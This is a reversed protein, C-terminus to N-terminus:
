IAAQRVGVCFEAIEWNVRLLEFVGIRGKEGTAGCAECGAGRYLILEEESQDSYGFDALARAPLAYSERCETCVCRMLRQALVGNLCRIIQEQTVGFDMLRRLADVADAAQITAFTPKGSLAAEVALAASEADYIDGVFLLDPNQRLATELWERRDLRRDAALATQTAAPLRYEITEELTHISREITNLTHLLSHVTTTRGSGPRGAFLLLGEFAGSLTELQAKTEPAMGLASLGRQPQLDDTFHLVAAEGNAGPIISVRVYYRQEKYNLAIYGTHPLHRQFSPIGAMVKYRNMLPVLVHKPLVLTRQLHGDIRERIRVSDADPEIHTDSAGSEIGRVFIGNALEAVPSHRATGESLEGANMESIDEVLSWQRLRPKSEEDFPSSIAVSAAEKSAMKEVYAMLDDSRFRWRRWGLHLAPLEGRRRLAHIRKISVGLYAATGREDLLEPESSAPPEPLGRTLPKM